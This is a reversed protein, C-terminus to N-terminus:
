LSRGADRQERWIGLKVQAAEDSANFVVTSFWTSHGDVSELIVVRDGFIDDLLASRPGEPPFLHNQWGRSYVVGDGPNIERLQVLAERLLPMTDALSLNVGQDAISGGFIHSHSDILGPLVLAGNAEIM